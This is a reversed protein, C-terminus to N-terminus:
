RFSTEMASCRRASGEASATVPDGHEDGVGLRRCQLPIRRVAALAGSLVTLSEVEGIKGSSGVPQYEVKVRQGQVATCPHFPGSPRTEDNTNPVARRAQCAFDVDGAGTDLEFKLGGMCSLKTM